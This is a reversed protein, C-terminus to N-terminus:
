KAVAPVCAGPGEVPAEKEAYLAAALGEATAAVVTALLPQQESQADDLPHTSETVNIRM